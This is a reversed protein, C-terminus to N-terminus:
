TRASSGTRTIVGPRRTSTSGPSTEATSGPQWTATAPSAQGAASTRWGPGQGPPWLEAKRFARVPTGPEYVARNGSIGTLIVKMGTAVDPIGAVTEYRIVTETGAVRGLDTVMDGVAVEDARCTTWARGHRDLNFRPRQFPPPIVRRTAPARPLREGDFVIRSAAAEKSIPILDEAHLPAAAAATQAEVQELAADSMFAEVPPAQKLKGARYADVDRGLSDPIELIHAPKDSM